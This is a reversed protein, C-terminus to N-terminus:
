TEGEKILWAGSPPTVVLKDDIGYTRCAADCGPWYGYDDLVLLGGPVLHPYLWVLCDLTSQYWDADLHLMAIPGIERSREPLTESFWGKVTHYQKDPVNALRMIKQVQQLHGKCWSGNTAMMYVWKSHAKGGDIEQPPPLGEWSDFMWLHRKGGGCAHWLVAASGGNTVGCQVVNGPPLSLGNVFTYLRALGAQKLASYPGAQAVLAEANM